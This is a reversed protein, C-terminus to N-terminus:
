ENNIAELLAETSDDQRSLSRNLGYSRQFLLNMMLLYSFMFKCANSSCNEDSSLM